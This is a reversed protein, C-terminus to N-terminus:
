VIRTLKLYSAFVGRVLRPCTKRGEFPGRGAAQDMYENGLCVTVPPGTFPPTQPFDRVSAEEAAGALLPRLLPLLLLVPAALTPLCRFRPRLLLSTPACRGRSCPSLCFSPRVHSRVRRSFTSHTATTKIDGQVGHVHFNAATAAADNWCLHTGSPRTCAWNIVVQRM